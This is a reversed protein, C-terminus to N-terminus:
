GIRIRPDLYGYLLDAVLNAAIVVVASVFFIAQLAPFDENVVSTFLYKGIGNLSFIIEVLITGTFLMGFALATFTVFPLMSNRLVHKYLVRHRGIGKARATIVYDRKLEDLSTARVMLASGAVLCLVLVVVPLAMHFLTDQVLFFFNEPPPITTTGGLPFWGLHYGFLLLLLAGTWFVPLSYLSITVVLFVSGMKTADKAAAAVGIFVGLISAIATALTVLLATNFLRPGIDLLVPRQTAFSIGFNGQLFNTIYIFFQETM